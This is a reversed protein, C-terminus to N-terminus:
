GAAAHLDGVDSVVLFLEMPTLVGRDLERYCKLGRRKVKGKRSDVKGM